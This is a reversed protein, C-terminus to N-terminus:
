HPPAVKKEKMIETVRKSITNTFDSWRDTLRLLVDRNKGGNNENHITSIIKIGRNFVKVLRSLFVAHFLQAHIIDPDEKKVVKSFRRWILLFNWKRKINLSIVRDGNKRIEEGVQGISVISIVVPEFKERDIKRLLDKLLMEAGGTNLGTLVYLIKIKTNPM